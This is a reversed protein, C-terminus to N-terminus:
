LFREILRDLKENVDKQGERLETLRSDINGFRVVDVDEHVSIRKDINNAKAILGGLSPVVITTLGALIWTSLDSAM